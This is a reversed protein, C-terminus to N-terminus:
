AHAAALLTAYIVTNLTQRKSIGMAFRQAAEQQAIFEIILEEAPRLFFRAM